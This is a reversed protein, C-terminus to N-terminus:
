TAINTTIINEIFNRSNENLNEETILPEETM